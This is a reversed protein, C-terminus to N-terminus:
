NVIFDFVLREDIVIQAIVQPLEHRLSGLQISSVQNFHPAPAATGATHYCSSGLEAVERVRDIEAVRKLSYDFCSREIREIRAAFVGIGTRLNDISQHSSEPELVDFHQCSNKRFFRPM